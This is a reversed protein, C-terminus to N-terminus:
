SGKALNTILNPQAATPTLPSAKSYDLISKNGKVLQNVATRSPLQVSSVKSIDVPKM